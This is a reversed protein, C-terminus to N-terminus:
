SISCKSKNNKSPKRRKEKGDGGDEDGEMAMEKAKEIKAAINKPMNLNLEDIEAQLHLM